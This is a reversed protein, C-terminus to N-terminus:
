EWEFAPPRATPPAWVHACFGRFRRDARERALVGEREQRVVLRHAGEGVRHGAALLRDRDAGGTRRGVEEGAQERFERGPGHQEDHRVEVVGVVRDIFQVVQERALVARRARDPERREFDRGARAIPLYADVQERLAEGHHAHESLASQRATLRDDRRDGRQHLGRGRGRFERRERQRELPARRRRERLHERPEVRCPVFAGVRDLLGSLERQAAPDEVDEGGRRRDRVFPALGRSGRRHADIEEAIVDVGDVLDIKLRKAGIAPQLTDIEHAGIGILQEAVVTEVAHERQEGLPRDGHQALRKLDDLLRAAVELPRGVCPPDEARGRRQLADLVLGARQDLDILEGGSRVLRGHADFEGHPRQRHERLIRALRHGFEARHRALAAHDRHALVVGLTVTQALHRALERRVTREVFADAEELAAKEEAVFRGVTRADREHGVGFQEVPEVRAPTHPPEARRARAAARHVRKEIELRAVIDHVGVVADRLKDPELLDLGLRRGRDRPLLNLRRRGLLVQREFKRPFHLDMDGRRLDLLDLLIHAPVPPRRRQRDHAARAPLALLLLRVLRHAVEGGLHQAHLRRAFAHRADAERAVRRPLVLELGLERVVLGFVLQDRERLDLLVHGGVARHIPQKAAIDAVSLGFERDAGRELGGLEALLDRHEHRRRHERLLVPAGERLSEGIVRELDLHERSQPAGLLLVGREGRKALPLDVNDDPCVAQEALIHPKRIQTQDDDVLLLTEADFVLLPQQREAHRHIHHREARRRDRAREVHRQQADPIDRRQRRGRHIAARHHGLHDREVLLPHFLDDRTFQVALPLHEEHVVAHVVDLAHRVIHLFERRTRPDHDPVPLHEGVFELLHHHLEDGALRVDENRRRDDLAADVDRGRVRHDDVVGVAESQGLQMLQAPADTARLVAPIAVQQQGVIAGDGVFGRLPQTGDLFVRHEARPELDRHAVELDAAGPVDEPGLLGPVDRRDAVVHVAAQELVRHLFELVLRRAVRRLHGDLDAHGARERLGVDRAVRTPHLRVPANRPRSRQVFERADLGIQFVRVALRRLDRLSQQLQRLHADPRELM